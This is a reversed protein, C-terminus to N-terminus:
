PQNAGHDRDALCTQNVFLIAQKSQLQSQGYESGKQIVPISGTITMDVNGLESSGSCPVVPKGYIKRKYNSPDTSDALATILRSQAM